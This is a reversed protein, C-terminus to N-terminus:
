MYRGLLDQLDSVWAKLAAIKADMEKRLEQKATEIRSSALRGVLRGGRAEAVVSSYQGFACKELEGDMRYPDDPTHTLEESWTSAARINHEAEKAPM